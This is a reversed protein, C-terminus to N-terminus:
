PAPKTVELEPTEVFKIDYDPNTSDFARGLSSDQGKLGAIAMKLDVNEGNNLPHAGKIIDGTEVVMVAEQVGNGFDTKLTVNKDEFFNLLRLITRRDMEGSILTVELPKKSELKHMFNNLSWVSSLADFHALAARAPITEGTQPHQQEPRRIFVMVCPAAGLTGITNIDSTADAIGYEGQLVGRTSDQDFERSKYEAPKDMAAKLRKQDAAVRIKEDEYAKLDYETPEPLKLVSSIYDHIDPSNEQLGLIMRTLDSRSRPSYIQTVEGENNELFLLITQGNPDLIYERDRGKLHTAEPFASTVSSLSFYPPNESVNTYGIEQTM